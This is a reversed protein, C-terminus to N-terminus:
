ITCQTSAPAKLRWIDLVLRDFLLVIHTQPSSGNLRRGRPNEEGHGIEGSGCCRELTARRYKRKRWGSRLAKELGRRSEDVVEPKPRRCLGFSCEEAYGSSETLCPLKSTNALCCEKRRGVIGRAISIRCAGNWISNM